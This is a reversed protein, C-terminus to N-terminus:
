QNNINLFPQLPSRTVVWWWTGFTVMEHIWVMKKVEPVKWLTSFSEQLQQHLTPPTTNGEM